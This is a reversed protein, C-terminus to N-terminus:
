SRCKYHRGEMDPKIMPKIMSQAMSQAMFDGFNAPTMIFGRLRLKFALCLLRLQSAVELVGLGDFTNNLLQRTKNRM